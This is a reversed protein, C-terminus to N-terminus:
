LPVAVQELIEALLDQKRVGAYRARTELVLRHALVPVAVAKVDEPAVFARGRMVAWAQAARVLALSGRPSVGVRVDPHMRTSRVMDVVYRAVSQAVKLHRVLQQASLLQEGTICTQLDDLPHHDFQSYLMQVEQDVDPYGLDMQLTFRDLQAEPLPYTGHHEVPNQTAIVLFPRPLAYTRGDITAQGENMAELLSSQTRPSARNVEDALLVNAFVPGERFTFSGDKPNYTNSGLIDTPLLDPTFQVRKFSASISRALAKALTTKGVGPVDEVLVHGAALLAVLIQDLSEPRGFIVQRLNSRVQDLSARLAELSPMSHTETPTTM